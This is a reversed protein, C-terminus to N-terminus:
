RTVGERTLTARLARLARRQLQKIAGASRGMVDAAQEISLDALIRLRLVEAQDTPLTDLLRRVNAEEDNHLAQQEASTTVRPDFEVRYEREPPQRSRKRAHDVMRSHAISFVFTQWGALGGTVRELRTLAALFVESTVAEADAVGKAILYALVRPSLERYLTNLANQDGDQAARLVADTAPESQQVARGYGRGLTEPLAYGSEADIRYRRQQPHVVDRHAAAPCCATTADVM